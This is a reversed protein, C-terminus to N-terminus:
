SLRCARSSIWRPERWAVTALGSVALVMVLLAVVDTLRYDPAILRHRTALVLLLALVLVELGVLEMSIM